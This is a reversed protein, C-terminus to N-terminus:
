NTAGPSCSYGNSKFFSLGGTRKLSGEKVYLVTWDDVQVAHAALRVPEAIYEKLVNNMKQGKEDLMLYYNTEGSATYTFFVPSIGGEICRVACDRHPKGSGPKMVGFYCKPDIVEGTLQVEGLDKKVSPVITEPERISVMPHDHRDIQLLTKGDHYILTGRFVIERNAFDVGSQQQLENIVGEAGSKGYGVLPMTIFESRGFMDKKTLVKVSPVPDRQYIGRVETLTGYEFQATSFKRQQWAILFAICIVGCILGIILTRVTKRLSAPANREWGIYFDNNTM